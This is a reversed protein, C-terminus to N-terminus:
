EHLANNQPGTKSTAIQISGFIVNITTPRHSFLYYFFTCMQYKLNANFGKLFIGIRKRDFSPIEQSCVYMKSLISVDLVIM